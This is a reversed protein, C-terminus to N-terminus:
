ELPQEMQMPVEMHMPEKQNMLEEKQRIEGIIAGVVNDFAVPWERAVM